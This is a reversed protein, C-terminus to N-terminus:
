GFLASKLPTEWSVLPVGYAQAACTASRRTVDDWWLETFLERPRALEARFGREGLAVRGWGEVRGAVLIWPSRPEDFEFDWPAFVGYLGCTCREDPATHQPKRPNFCSPIGHRYCIAHLPETRPWCERVPGHASWLHGLGLAWTRYGCPTRDRRAREYRSRM